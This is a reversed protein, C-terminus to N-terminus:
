DQPFHTQNLTSLPRGWGARRSCKWRALYPMDAADRRTPGAINIQYCNHPLLPKGLPEATFFRGATCSVCSSRTQDRHRSSGRISPMAVWELIRAQLIGHVSSDPLSYDVPDCLTLCLQLSKLLCLMHPLLRMVYNYKTKYPWWASSSISEFRLAPSSEESDRPCGPSWVLWDYLFDVRFLWSSQQQQQLELMKTVQHSCIVWQFLGQHQSLSLAFSSPTLPHSPQIANIICHIHVQAFEPLHPVPLGPMSCDM